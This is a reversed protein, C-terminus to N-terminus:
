IDSAARQKLYDREHELVSKEDRQNYIEKVKWGNEWQGDPTKIKVIENVKAFQSPIWAVVVYEKNQITKSLLCQTYNM